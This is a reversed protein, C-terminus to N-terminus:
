LSVVIVYPQSSQLTGVETLLTTWDNSSENTTWKHTVFHVKGTSKFNTPLSIFHFAWM